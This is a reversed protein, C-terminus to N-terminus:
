FNPLFLLYEPTDILTQASCSLTALPVDKRTGPMYINKVLLWVGVQGCM